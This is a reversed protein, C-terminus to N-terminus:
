LFSFSIFDAPKSGTRYNKFNNLIMQCSTKVYNKWRDPFSFIGYSVSYPVWNFICKALLSFSRFQIRSKGFDNSFVNGIGNRWVNIICVNSKRIKQPNDNM